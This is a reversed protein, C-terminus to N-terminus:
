KKQKKNKTKQKKTKQKKNKRTTTSSETSRNTEIGRNKREDASKSVLKKQTKITKRKVGCTNDQDKLRM